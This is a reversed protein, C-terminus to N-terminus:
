MRKFASSFAPLSLSFSLASISLVLPKLPILPTKVYLLSSWSPVFVFSIIMTSTLPPLHDSFFYTFICATYHKLLNYTVNNLPFSFVFRPRLAGTEGTIFPYVVIIAPLCSLAPLFVPMVAFFRTDKLTARPYTTLSNFAVIVWDIKYYYPTFM